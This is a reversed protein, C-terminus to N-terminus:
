PVSAAAPTIWIKVLLPRVPRGWHDNLTSWPKTLDSGNPGSGLRAGGPSVIKEHLTLDAVPVHRLPVMCAYRSLKGSRKSPSGVRPTERAPPVDDYRNM